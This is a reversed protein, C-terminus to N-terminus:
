PHSIQITSGVVVTEININSGAGGRQVKSLAQDVYDKNVADRGNTPTAVNAVRHQGVDVTATAADASWNSGNLQAVLRQFGVRVYQTLTPVDTAPSIPPVTLNAM